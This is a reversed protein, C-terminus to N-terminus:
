SGTQQETPKKIAVKAQVKRKQLAMNRVGRVAALLPQLASTLAAVLLEDMETVEDDVDGQLINYADAVPEDLVM